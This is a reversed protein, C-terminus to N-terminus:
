VGVGVGPGGGKTDSGGLIATMEGYRNLVTAARKGEETMQVTTKGSVWISGDITPRYRLPVIRSLWSWGIPALCRLQACTECAM